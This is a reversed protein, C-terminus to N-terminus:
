IYILMMITDTVMIHIGIIIAATIVDTIEATIVIITNKEVATRTTIIHAAVMIVAAMDAVMIDAVAMDAAMFIAAAMDARLNDVAMAATSRVGWGPAVTAAAGGTTEAWVAGVVGVM